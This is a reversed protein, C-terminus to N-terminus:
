RGPAKMKPLGRNPRSDTTASLTKALRPKKLSKSRRGIILRRHEQLGNLTDLDPESAFGVLSPKRRVGPGRAACRSAGDFEVQFGVLASALEGQSPRAWGLLAGALTLM